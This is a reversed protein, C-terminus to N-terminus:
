QNDEDTDDEDTDTMEKIFLGTFKRVFMKRCAYLVGLALLYIGAITLFTFILAVVMHVVKTLNLLLVGGIIAVLALGFYALFEGSITM